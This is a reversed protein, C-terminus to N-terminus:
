SALTSAFAAFATYKIGSHYNPSIVPFSLYQPTEATCAQSQCAAHQEQERRELMVAEAAKPDKLAHPVMQDGFLEDMQELSKGKTEPFFLFVVVASAANSCVFFIYYKWGINAFGIPSVQSFLVMTAYNVVSSISFGISRIQMPFIEVPYIWSIPGYTASYVISFCFLMAIGGIPAGQNEGGVATLATLCSIIIAMGINGGWLMKIRPLRDLVIMAFFCSIPGAFGYIGTLLLSQKQTFGLNKIFMTLYFNVVTIGSLSVGIWVGCALFVRRRWAPRKWIEKYSRVTQEKEVCIQDRMEKFQQNIFDTNEGTFHLKKVLAYALDDNDKEILWRPSEPLFPAAFLVLLAFLIQVALPFRWQFTTTSFSAGYGIWNAVVYGLATMISEISMLFAREHPPAIEAQYVPVVMTLIGIALGIVVRGVILMVTNVAGAQLAGGIVGFFAGAMMSKKRGYKDNIPAAIGAGIAAGAQLM